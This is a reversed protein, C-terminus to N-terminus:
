AFGRIGAGSIPFIGGKSPVSPDGWYTAEEADWSAIVPKPLATAATALTGYQYSGGGYAFRFPNALTILTGIAVSGWAGGNVSFELLGATWRLALRLSRYREFVTEVKKYGGSDQIWGIATYLNSAASQGGLRCSFGFPNNSSEGLINGNFPPRSDDGTVTMVAGSFLVTGSATTLLSSCLVSNSIIPMYCIARKGLSQGTAAVKYIGGNGLAINRANGSQDYWFDFKGSSPQLVDAAGRDLADTGTLCSVDVGEIKVIATSWASLMRRMGGAFTLTQGDLALAM